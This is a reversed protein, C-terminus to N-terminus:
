QRLARAIRELDAAMKDRSTKRIEIMSGADAWIYARIADNILANRSIGKRKTFNEICVPLDADPYYTISVTNARPM